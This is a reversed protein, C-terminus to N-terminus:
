VHVIDHDALFSLIGQSVLFFIAHWPFSSFFIISLNRLERTFIFRGTFSHLPFFFHINANGREELQLCSAIAM